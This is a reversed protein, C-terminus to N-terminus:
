FMQVFPQLQFLLNSITFDFKELISTNEKIRSFLRFLLGSRNLENILKEKLKKEIFELSYDHM